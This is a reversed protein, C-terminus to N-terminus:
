ADLGVGDEYNVLNSFEVLLLIEFTIINIIIIIIVIITDVIVIVGIM